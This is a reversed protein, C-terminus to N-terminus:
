RSAESKAPSAVAKGDSGPTEQVVSFGKHCFPCVVEFPKATGSFAAVTACIESVIFWGVWLGGVVAIFKVFDDADELWKFM